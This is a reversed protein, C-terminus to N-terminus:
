GSGMNEVGVSFTDKLLVGRIHPLDLIAVADRM